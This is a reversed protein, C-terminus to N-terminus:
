NRGPRGPRGLDIGGGGGGGPPGPDVIVSLEGGDCLWDDECPYPYWAGTSGAGSGGSSRVDGQSCITAGGANACEAAAPSAAAIGIGLGTAAIALGPILYRQVAAMAAEKGFGILRVL